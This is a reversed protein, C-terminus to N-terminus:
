PPAKKASLQLPRGPNFGMRVYMMLSHLVTVLIYIAVGAFAVWSEWAGSARCPLRQPVCALHPGALGEFKLIGAVCGPLPNM